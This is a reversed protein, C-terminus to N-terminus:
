EATHVQSVRFVYKKNKTCVEFERDRKVQAYDNIDLTLSRKIDRSPLYRYAMVLKKDQSAITLLRPKFNGFTM